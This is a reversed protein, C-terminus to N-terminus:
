RRTTIIRFNITYEKTNMYRDAGLSAHIYRCHKQGALDEDQSNSLLSILSGFSQLGESYTWWTVGEGVWEGM